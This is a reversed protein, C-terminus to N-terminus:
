VGLWGEKLSLTHVAITVHAHPYKDVKFEVSDWFIRWPLKELAQLYRLTSLYTGKFEIVMGHKFVAGATKDSVELAGAPAATLLTGDLNKMKVLQLEKDHKLVEQLVKAMQTPQILTVASESIRQDLGSIEAQLAAIRARAEKNPDIAHGALIGEVQLGATANQQMMLKIQDSIQKQEVALPEMLLNNWLAYIIFLIALLLLGRERLSLEDIRNSLQQLKEKM